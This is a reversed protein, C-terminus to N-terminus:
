STALTVVYVHRLRRAALRGWASLIRLVFLIIRARYLAALPMVAWCSLMSLMALL